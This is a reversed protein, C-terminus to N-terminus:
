EKVMRELEEFWNVVLVLDRGSADSRRMAFWQGSPHVAYDPHDPNRGYRDLFLQTPAGASFTPNTRVSVAVFNTADRYFLERGDASWAPETGGGNSIQWKGGPGPFARVYVEDAGSEDSAYALWAGDPSLAICRENFRTRLFEQSPSGSDAPVVWIDRGTGPVSQRVALHRADPAWLGEYQDHPATAVSTPMASGDAPVRYLDM